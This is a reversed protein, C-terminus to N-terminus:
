EKLKDRISRLGSWRADSDAPACGCPNANLNQGCRPCLGKCDERCVTKIPVALLVQERLVDELLVGEGRYYAVDVEKAELHLEDQGADAGQPRYLLDFDRRIERAVPDLCRACLIELGTSFGGVLRIDEISGKRGHHERVLLARGNATLPKAQRIDPGLDISEPQWEQEFNLQEGHLQLDHVSILM